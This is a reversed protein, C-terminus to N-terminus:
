VRDKIGNGKNDDVEPNLTNRGSPTNRLYRHDIEFLPHNDSDIISVGDSQQSINSYNSVTRNMEFLEVEENDTQDKKNLLKAYQKQCWQRINKFNGCFNAFNTSKLIYSNKSTASNPIRNNNIIDGVRLKSSKNFSDNSIRRGIVTRREYSIELSKLTHLWEWVVISVCIKSFTSIYSAWLRLLQSSVALSLFVFHSLLTFGCFISLALAKRHVVFRWRQSVHYFIEGCFLVLIIYQVTFNLYKAVYIGTNQAKSTSSANLIGYIISVVFGGCALFIGISLTVKRYIYKNIQVVLDIWSLYTLFISVCKVIIIDTSNSILSELEHSSTFDKAVQNKLIDNFKSLMVSNAVSSFLTSLLLSNPVANSSLLLLGFLMWSATVIGCFVFCFAVVSDVFSDGNFINQELNPSYNQISELISQATISSNTTNTIYFAPFAITFNSTSGSNITGSLLKYIDFNGELGELAEQLLVYSDSYIM